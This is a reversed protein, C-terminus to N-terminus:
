EMLIDFLEQVEKEYQIFDIKELDPSREFESDDVERKTFNIAELHMLIGYREVDYVMPVGAINAYSSFWYAKQPVLAETFWIDPHIITDASELTYSKSFVGAISDSDGTPNITYEPQSAVMKKVDAENLVTYFLKNGFDLRMEVTKDDENSIIETSFIKGRAIRTKVKKDSFTLTMSEPLIAEMFGSIDANPYTIAYEIEGETIKDSGCSNLLLLTTIILTALGRMTMFLQNTHHVFIYNEETIL